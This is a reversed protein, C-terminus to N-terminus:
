ESITKATKANLKCFLKASFLVRIMGGVGSLRIHVTCKFDNLPEWFARMTVFLMKCELWPVTSHVIQVLFEVVIMWGVMRKLSGYEILMRRCCKSSVVGLVFRKTDSNM